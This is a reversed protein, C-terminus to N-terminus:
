SKRVIIESYNPKKYDYRELLFCRMWRILTQWARGAQEYSLSLKQQLYERVEGFRRPEIIFRDIANFVPTALLSVAIVNKFQDATLRPPPQLIALDLKGSQLTETPLFDAEFPQYIRFLDAPSRCAPIWCELRLQPNSFVYEELVVDQHNELPANLKWNKATESFTKYLNEDVQIAAEFLTNEFDQLGEMELNTDILLELNPKPSWGLATSTLNASGLLVNEDGRFYKAHLDQRLWFNGGHKDVVRFVELDSVGAMIDAPRWRTVCNLEITKPISALLRACASAKIYPAVLLIEESAVRCLKELAHGPTNVRHEM